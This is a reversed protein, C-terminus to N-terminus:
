GKLVVFLGGCCLALRALELLANRLLFTFETHLDHALIM